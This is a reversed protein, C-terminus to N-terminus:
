LLPRWDMIPMTNQTIFIATYIYIPIILFFIVFKYDKFKTFTSFSILLLPIIPLAYRAVDRHSVFLLSLFFIGMFWSLVNEKLRVLHSFGLAGLLYIYLVDELWFTGVWPQSFNFVQFPPFFIHINDGSNFYAYFNGFRIKYFYFLGLLSFPILLLPTYIALKKFSLQKTFGSVTSRSIIATFISFGYAIFLLIGPSKTLTAVAGWFGALFYKKSKFYYLSAIIAAIFLPEASGVSRVILWRAPFVAFVLTLWLANNNDTFLSALKFFFYFAAVSSLVTVFLMAYPYGLIPSFLRIALPFLPFHAAYYEVPLTFPFNGIIEANYLSKAVVIYLPGDYNAVISAMGNHVLPIELLKTIHFLFPLWVLVVPLIALALIKLLDGLSSKEIKLNM